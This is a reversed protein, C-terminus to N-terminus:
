LFKACEFFTCPTELSNNTPLKLKAFGLYIICTIFCIKCPFLKETAEFRIMLYQEFLQPLQFFFLLLYDHHNECYSRSWNKHIM